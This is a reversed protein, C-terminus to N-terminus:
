IKIKRMEAIRFEFAVEDYFKEETDGDVENTYNYAEPQNIIPKHAKNRRTPPGRMNPQVPPGPQAPADKNDNGAISNLFADLDLDNNAPNKASSKNGLKMHSQSPNVIENGDKVLSGQNLDNILQDFDDSGGSSKPNTVRNDAPVPTPGYHNDDIKSPAMKGYDPPPTMNLNNKKGYQGSMINDWNQKGALNQPNDFFGTMPQTSAESYDFKMDGNGGNGGFNPQSPPPPPPSAKRFKPPLEKELDIHTFNYRQFMTRLYNGVEMPTPEMHEFCAILEQDVGKGEMALRAFENGFYCQIMYNFENIVKLNLRESSWIVSQIYKMLPAIKESNRENAAAVVQISREKLFNVNRMVIKSARIWNFYTVISSVDFLCDGYLYKGNQLKEKIAREKLAMQDIKRGRNLLLYQYVKDCVVNFNAREMKRQPKPHNAGM